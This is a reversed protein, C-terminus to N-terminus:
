GSIKKEFFDTLDKASLPKCYLFGQSAQCGNDSLFALQEETEVGEAIVDLKLSQAMVIIATAIAAADADTTVDNIFSRDIKLTDIPFRRLYSLSSYGTGFDDIAFRIGMDSLTNIAEMTSTTNRMLVSETIELELLAPEIGSDTIIKKIRDVGESNVQRSSLNVSMRIPDGKFMENWKIAQQCAKSLVWEGVSVIQGTEELLPIFDLPSVLGLDPHMWRILAEVGIIKESKVDVQPQYHLVFEDQDLARRLSSELTLREFAKTSMGVSYFQYNNKGLDKAKYMAIDANKLLTKCDEGDAPFSSVGISATIYFEREDVIFKPELSELIKKSLDSVDKESGVDDLLVAFEDGGLRAVTDCGRLEGVLRQAILQLIKDGVDHGLSDNITKFRDLDIFMVAVLRDHWKARSLAQKLRDLFLTRNPLETLPDHHAMYQLKEQAQMRETINKGTSVFHTIKGNSDKLPTITKQEYYLTGDKRKNILVDNFVEGSTIKLWLDTYFAEKQKGSKVISPKGGIAEEKSYGTAKVFSENVYEIIGSCDTIMVVDASQELAKSLKHMEEETEKIISIDRTTGEIGLIKGSVDYYYHANTSVWIVEGDKRAIAAVHNDVKGNGDKISEKFKKQSGPEVFIDTLNVKQIEDISYGLLQKISKSALIIKDSNDARFFTDQMDNLITSLNIESSELKIKAHYSDIELAIRRCFTALISSTWATLEMPNVDLVSVLGITEGSSNILPAGFYSEVSMEALMTDEPYLKTVNAPVLKHTRKLIDACPTGALEYEFNEMIEVGNLLAQTRVKTKDDELLLGVFAFQAGYAKALLKVCTQLFENLDIVSSEALLNLADLTNKRDTIDTVSIRILKRNKVPLRVLQVDCSIARGTKSKFGWEFIFSAGEMVENIQSQINNSALPKGLASSEGQYSTKIFIELGCSLIEEKSTDLVKVAHLNAEVFKEIEIDYVVIAIPAYETLAKLEEASTLYSNNSGAQKDIKKTLM